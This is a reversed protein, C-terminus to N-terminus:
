VRVNSYALSMSFKGVIEAALAKLPAIYIIKMENRMMNIVDTGNTYFEKM